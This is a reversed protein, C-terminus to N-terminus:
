TEALRRLASRTLGRQLARAIPRGLRTLRLGPRSRADIAVTVAGAEDLRVRFTAVGREPHGQLTVYSFGAERAGGESRDWDDVVRVAMELALPGLLIQQVITAGARLPGAPCIASRVLAPPFVDYALLRDRVRVFADAAGEGPRVRVPAADHDITPDPPGSPPSTEAARGWRACSASDPPRRTRVVDM